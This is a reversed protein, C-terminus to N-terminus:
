NWWGFEKKSSWQSWEPQWQWQSQWAPAAHGPSPGSAAPKPLGFALCVKEKHWDGYRVEALDSGDGRLFCGLPRVVTDRDPQLFLIHSQRLEAQQGLPAALADAAPKPPVVRPVHPCLRVRHLLAKTRGNTLRELMDGSFLVADGEPPDLAQWEGGIYGELGAESCHQLTVIGYDTHETCSGGAPYLCHRLASNSWTERGGRIKMDLTMSKGGNWGEPEPTSDCIPRLEREVLEKLASKLVLYGQPVWDLDGWDLRRDYLSSDSMGFMFRKDPVHEKDEGDLTRRLDERCSLRLHRDLICPRAMFRSRDCKSESLLERWRLYTPACLQSTLNADDGKSSLRLFVVGCVALAELVHGRHQGYPDIRPIGGFVSLSRYLPVEEAPPGSGLQMPAQGAAEGTDGSSSVMTSAESAALVTSALSNVSPLITESAIFVPPLAALLSPPSLAPPPAGHPPPPAVSATQLAADVQAFLTAVTPSIFESTGQKTCLSSAQPNIVNPAADAQAFLAAVSQSRCSVQPNLSTPAADVQSFLQEVSSSAFESAGQKASLWSFQSNLSNPASHVPTGNHPIKNYYSTPSAASPSTAAATAPEAAMAV